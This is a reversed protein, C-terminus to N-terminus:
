SLRRVHEAAAWVAAEDAALDVPAAALLSRGWDPLARLRAHAQNVTLPTSPRSPRSSRLRADLEAAIAAPMVGFREQAQAPDDEHDDEDHHPSRACAPGGICRTVAQHGHEDLVTVWGRDCEHPPIAEAADQQNKRRQDAELEVLRPHDADVDLDRLLGALVVAPRTHIQHQDLDFLRHGRRLGQDTLAAIVDSATWPVNATAFRMLCPTLRSVAEGALWPLHLAM